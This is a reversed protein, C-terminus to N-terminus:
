THMQKRRREGAFAVYRGISAIAGGSEVGRVVYRRPWSSISSVSRQRAYIRVSALRRLDTEAFALWAAGVLDRRTEM